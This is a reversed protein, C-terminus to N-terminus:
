NLTNLLATDTANEDTEWWRVSGRLKKYESFTPLCYEIIVSTGRKKSCMHLDPDNILPRSDIEGKELPLDLFAQENETL